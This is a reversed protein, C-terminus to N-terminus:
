HQDFTTAKYHSVSYVPSNGTLQKDTTQTSNQQIVDHLLGWTSRFHPSVSNKHLAESPQQVHDNTSAQYDRHYETNRNFEATTLGSDGVMLLYKSKNLDLLFHLHSSYVNVKLNNFIHAINEISPFTIWSLNSSHSIKCTQNM